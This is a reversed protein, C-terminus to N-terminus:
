SHGIAISRPAVGAPSFNHLNTTPVPLPVVAIIDALLTGIQVTFRLLTM